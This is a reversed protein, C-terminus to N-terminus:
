RSLNKLQEYLGRQERTLRKPIDIHIVVSLDGRGRRTQQGKGRFTFATGEPVGPPLRLEIEDGFNTKFRLTDGLVAQPITVTLQVQVQSFASEFLDEFISGFGGASGFDFNGTQTRFGGGFGGFGGGGQGAGASAHGFQDYQARKQKDSLVQYAENIEQFKEKQGGKDPHHQHALKRYAKKLEAESATKSVGLIDYFDKAM